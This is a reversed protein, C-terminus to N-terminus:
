FDDVIDIDSNSFDRWTSGDFHVPRALGIAPDSCIAIAGVAIDILSALESQTYVPLHIPDQFSIQGVAGFSLDNNSSFNIAGTGIFNINEVDLEQTRVSHFTPDQTISFNGTNSNYALNSGEIGVCGRVQSITVGQYTIQGTLSDYGISGFGGINSTGVVSLAGNKIADQVTTSSLLSNLSLRYTVYDQTIPDILQDVVFMTGPIPENNLLQLDKIKRPTPFVVETWRIGDFVEVKGLDTNFRIYGSEPNSPRQDTRGTPLALFSSTTM